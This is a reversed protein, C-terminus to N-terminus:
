SRDEGVLEMGAASKERLRKRTLPFELSDILAQCSAEIINASCGVTSWSSEGDSADILVRTQAATASQEDLIRVKYDTLQVSALGPYFQLLAKRLAKDLANVPGNGEAATHLVVGDVQAKVTAEALIETGQRKEVLVLFDLVEFPVEYDPQSRCMLLELSGEAGEFQYGQSEMEKIHSVLERAQENSLQLRVPLEEIKYQINGKGAL